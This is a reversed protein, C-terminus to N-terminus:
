YQVKAEDTRSENGKEDKLIIQYSLDHHLNVNTITTYHLTAPKQNIPYTLSTQATHDHILISTIYPRDTKFNVFLYRGTTSFSVKGTLSGAQSTQVSRNTLNSFVTLSLVVLFSFVLVTRLAPLPNDWAKFFAIKASQANKFKLLDDPYAFVGHCKPCKFLSVNHPVAEENEVLHLIINDKPCIKPNGTIVSTEADKTLTTADDATIRNISNEEFFNGGCHKCHLVKQNSITVTALQENCNPCIM